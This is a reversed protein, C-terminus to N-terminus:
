KGASFSLLSFPVQTSAGGASIVLNLSTVGTDLAPYGPSGTTGFFVNYGYVASVPAAPDLASSIEKMFQPPEVALAPYPKPQQTQLEFTVDEPSHSKALQLVVTFRVQRNIQPLAADAVREAGEPSPDGAMAVEFALEDKALCIGATRVIVDTGLRLNVEKTTRNFLSYPDGGNQIVRIGRQTAEEIAKPDTIELAPNLKPATACGLGAPLLVLAAFLRLYAPTLRRGWTFWDSGRDM